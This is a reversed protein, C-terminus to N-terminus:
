ELPITAQDITEGDKTIASIKINDEFVEMLVFHTLPAYIRSEPLLNGQAYLTSSGGGTVIYTINNASLREYAHFHGSFSIPVKATEFLPVWSYRVALSDDPHVSSSSYPAVHFIPITFRYKPDMLREELWRDQEAKGEVGFLVQSDLMLFQIDRYAFAYYQNARRSGPYSFTPDPFPPFAYDYFPAGQWSLAVDYDHNGLVTYVPMQHLLPSFPEFFKLLYSNLLNSDDTEYVVDGTHIVFDLDQSAMLGILSYTAEDGFSADGLVGVRFSGQNSITDFNVMGWEKQAFAPQRFDGGGHDVLVMAQYGVGPSLGEISIMHRTEGGIIPVEGDFNIGATTSRYVLLGTQPNSLEFFLIASEDTVHRVTLPIIFDNDSLPYPKSFYDPTDTDTAPLDSPERTQSPTAIIIQTATEEPQAIPTISVSTNTLFSCGLSLGVISITIFAIVRRRYINLPYSGKSIGTYM